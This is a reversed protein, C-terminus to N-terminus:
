GLTAPARLGAWAGILEAIPRPESALLRSACARLSAQAAPTLYDVPSKGDIRALLMGLLPLWACTDIDAFTPVALERYASWFAAAAELLAPLRLREYKLLLHALLYAPDFGPAGWNATEADLILIEAADTILVNKPSFDGHVLTRRDTELMEILPGLAPYRDRIHRFFPDIRLADFLAANDFRAGLGPERAAASAITGLATGLARAVRVDVTGALLRSKWNHWRAPDYWRLIAVGAHEDHAVVEAAQEGIWNRATRLWRVEEANRAVPAEWLVQVRLRPLARKACWSAEPADVRWIDSSVGGTLPTFRLTEPPRGLLDVIVKRFDPDPELTPGSM